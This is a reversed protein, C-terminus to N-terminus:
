ILRIICVFWSDKPWTNWDDFSEVIEFDVNEKKLMDFVRSAWKSEDMGHRYFYGRKLSFTGNKHRVVKDIGTLGEALKRFETMRKKMEREKRKYKTIILNGILEAFNGECFRHSNLNCM